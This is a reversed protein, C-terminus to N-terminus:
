RVYLNEIDPFLSELNATETFDAFDYMISRDENNELAKLIETHYKSLAEASFYNNPYKIADEISYATDDLLYRISEATHDYGVHEENERVTDFEGYKNHKAHLSAKYTYLIDNGGEEDIFDVDIITGLVLRDYNTIIDDKKKINFFWDLNNDYTWRGTGIFSFDLEYEKKDNLLANEKVFEYTQNYDLDYLEYIYTGYYAYGNLKNFYYIFRTLDTLDKNKFTIHGSASSCNAM